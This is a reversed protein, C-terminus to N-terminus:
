PHGDLSNHLKEMPVSFAWEIGDEHMTRRLDAGLSIGLIRELVISGFGKREPREVLKVGRERWVFQVADDDIRWSIDLVGEEGSFAGYKAANTSLEHIAMGMVQAAQSDLRVEPGKVRVRTPDSPRFTELQDSVLIGLDVGQTANTIMLDTSRALGSVRRRFAEAFEEKSETLKATQNLMAPIVTLQNKSRHAVERM